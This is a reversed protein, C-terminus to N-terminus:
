RPSIDQILEIVTNRISKDEEPGNLRTPFAPFHGLYPEMLERKAPVPFQKAYDGLAYDKIIETLPRGLTGGPKEAEM